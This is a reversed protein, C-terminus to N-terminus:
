ENYMTCVLVTYKLSKGAPEVRVNSAATKESVGASTAVCIYTEADEKKVSRLTLAGNLMHSRGLPLQAGLRKWSLVPQPEGTASCNLTLSEGAIAIVKAPPKVTFKPLKVVVLFTRRATTGLLNSATCIYHGSDDSQANHLELTSRNGHNSYVSTRSLKGLPRSWTVRPQPYGTVHCM